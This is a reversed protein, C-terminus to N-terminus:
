NGTAIKLSMVSHEMSRRGSLKVMGSCLWRASPKRPEDAFNKFNVLRISKIM